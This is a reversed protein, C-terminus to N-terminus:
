YVAAQELALFFGSAGGGCIEGDIEGDVVDAGQHDGVYVDVVHAANGVQEGGAKVAGDDAGFRGGNHKRFDQFIGQLNAESPIPSQNVTNQLQDPRSHHQQRIAAPM